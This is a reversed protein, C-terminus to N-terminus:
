HSQRLHEDNSPSLRKNKIYYIETVLGQIKFEIMSNTSGSIIFHLKKLKLTVFLKKESLKFVIPAELTKGLFVRSKFNALCLTTLFYCAVLTIGKNATSKRHFFIYIDHYRM